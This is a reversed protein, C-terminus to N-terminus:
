SFSNLLLVIGEKLVSGSALLLQYVTMSSAFIQLQCKGLSSRYYDALALCFVGSGVGTERKAWYGKCNLCPKNFINIFNARESIDPTANTLWAWSHASPRLLLVSPGSSIWWSLQGRGHHIWADSLSWETNGEVYHVSVSFSFCADWNWRQWSATM